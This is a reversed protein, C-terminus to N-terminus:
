SFVSLQLQRMLKTGVKPQAALAAERLAIQVACRDKPESGSGLAAELRARDFGTRKELDRMMSGPIDFRNEPRPPVTGTAHSEVEQMLAIRRDQWVGSLRADSRWLVTDVCQAPDFPAYYRMVKLEWETIDRLLAPPAERLGSIRQDRAMTQVPGFSPTVPPAGVVVPPTPQPVPTDNGSGVAIRLVGVIVFCIAWFPISVGEGVREAEDVRALNLWGEVQPHSTRIIKLLETRPGKPNRWPKRTADDRTLETWAGHLRHKPDAVLAVFRTAGIREIITQADPSLAYDNRRDIWGFFAAAPELLPDSRPISAALNEAFWREAGTLFDVREMRPDALLAQGHHRIAEQEAPTPPDAHGPFLLTELAHFHAEIEAHFRTEAPDPEPDPAPEPEPEPLADPEPADYPADDTPAIAPAAAYALAADRADRLREFGAPDADVDMAKLRAAYARRIAARETTPAIGLADWDVWSM